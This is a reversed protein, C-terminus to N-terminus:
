VVGQLVGGRELLLLEIIFFVNLSYFCNVWVTTHPFFQRFAFFDPPIFNHVESDQTSTCLSHDINKEFMMLARAQCIRLREIGDLVKRSNSSRLIQVNPTLKIVRDFVITCSRM